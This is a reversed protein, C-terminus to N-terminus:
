HLEPYKNNSRTVSEDVLERASQIDLVFALAHIDLALHAVIQPYGEANPM